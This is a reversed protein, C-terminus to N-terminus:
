KIINKRRAVDENFAKVDADFINWCKMLGRLERKLADQLSPMWEKKHNKVVLYLQLKLEELNIGAFSAPLEQFIDKNRKILAVTLAILSDRFKDHVSRLYRSSADTEESQNPASTKAEIIRLITQDPSDLKIAFEAKKMGTISSISQSKEFYFTANDELIFDMDSERVVINM